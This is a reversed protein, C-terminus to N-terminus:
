KTWQVAEIFHKGLAVASDYVIGQMALQSVLAESGSDQTVATLTVDYLGPFERYARACWVTRLTPRPGAQAAQVFGESCRQRTQWKRSWGGPFGPQIQQSLFAAFQFQNLSESKVYTHVLHIVGTNLDDAIFLQTDSSCLSANVAARPKPVQDVNTRGWCSFWPAASEPATYRGLTVPNFGLEGFSKYLSGQWAAFQRGIEATFDAPPAADGAAARALLAAAFKAPVLFSVLEGGLQRAVNIGAVTGESTVTPGGSMGPNLAGSFHIRQNYTREVPGNYTGDVITFGLDLPNGMSYLQEGKPLEGAVARRSFQFFPTDRRDIRVLALDNAVDIALLDIKGSSGDAMLYELRYTKPELAYQSVVHYNTIALGDASVLFGSGIIAQRGAAEVVTRIQLLRPRSAAYIEEANAPNAAEAPPPLPEAAALGAALVLAATLAIRGFFHQALPNAIEFLASNQGLKHALPFGPLRRPRRRFARANKARWRVAAKSRCRLMLLKRDQRGLVPEGYVSTVPAGCASKVFTLVHGFDHDGFVIKEQGCHEGGKERCVPILHAARDAGDLVRDLDALAMPGIQREDIHPQGIATVAPFDGGPELALAPRADEIRGASAAPEAPEAEALGIAVREQAFWESGVIEEASELDDLVDDAGPHGRLREGVAEM